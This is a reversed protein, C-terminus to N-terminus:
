RLSKAFETIIPNANVNENLILKPNLFPASLGKNPDNNHSM